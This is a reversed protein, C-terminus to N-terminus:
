CYPRFNDYKIQTVGQATLRPATIDTPGGSSSDNFFEDPPPVGVSNRRKFVLRQSFGERQLGKLFTQFIKSVPRSLCRRFSYFKGKGSTSIQEASFLRHACSM